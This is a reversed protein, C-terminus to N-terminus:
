SSSACLMLLDSGLIDVICMMVAIIRQKVISHNQRQTPVAMTRASTGDDMGLVLHATLTLMKRARSALPDGDVREWLFACETTM